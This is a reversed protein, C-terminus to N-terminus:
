FENSFITGLNEISIEEELVYLGIRKRKISNEHADYIKGTSKLQQAKFFDRRCSTTNKWNVVM